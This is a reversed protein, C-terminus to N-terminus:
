VVDEGEPGSFDTYSKGGIRNVGGGSIHYLEGLSFKKLSPSNGHHKTQLISINKLPPLKEEPVHIEMALLGIGTATTNGNGFKM